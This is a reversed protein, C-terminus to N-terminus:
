SVRLFTLFNNIMKQRQTKVLETLGYQEILTNRLNQYNPLKTESCSM